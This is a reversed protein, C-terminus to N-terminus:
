KSWVHQRKQVLHIDSPCGFLDNLLGLLERIKERNRGILWKTSKNRECPRKFGSNVTYLSTDPKRLSMCRKMSGISRDLKKYKFCERDLEIQGFM